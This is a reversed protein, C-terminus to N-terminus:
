AAAQRSAEVRAQMWTQVDSEVWASSRESLKIPKPFWGAAAGRYVSPRTLGTADMVQEIRLFKPTTTATANNTHKM